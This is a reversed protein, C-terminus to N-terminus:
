VESGGYVVVVQYESITYATDGIIPHILYM